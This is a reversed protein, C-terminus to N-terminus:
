ATRRVSSTPLESPLSVQANFMAAFLNRAGTMAQRVANTRSELRVLRGYGPHLWRAVDGAGYM